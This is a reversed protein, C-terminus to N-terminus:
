YQGTELKVALIQVQRQIATKKRVENEITNIAHLATAHYRNFSKGIAQLPADTYRRALFMAIQRPRVIVQKRSRSVIEKQSLRFHDCVLTKISELTIQKRQRAINTVISEALALNAPIGMLSSKASVGILGSELQRVDDTLESALYDIVERGIQIGQRQAKRKLIRVRMQHDPPEISSILGSNLRSRLKDNIKPIACPGYCSSFIIKKDAAHLSDLTHALEIQTREKGSLHHIDELLLVDCGNRYKTKFKDLQDFRFAAVMESAFDEATMYYVREDPFQSLIYHGIAQTLHSKGMGTNSLLYLVGQATKSKAAVSLSASYAFDNNRGVVFQDFTFNRQLLRGEHPRFNIDPLPLQQQLPAATKQAAAASIGLTVTWDQRGTAERLEAQLLNLYHTEIRRKSFTNPCHLVWNRDEVGQYRLPDIWMHYAHRPIRDRITKKIHDWNVDM